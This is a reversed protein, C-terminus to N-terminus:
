NPRMTREVCSGTIMREYDNNDFIMFRKLALNRGLLIIGKGLIMCSDWNANWAELIVKEKMLVLTINAEEGLKFCNLFGDEREGEWGTWDEQEREWTVSPQMWLGTSCPLCSRALLLRPLLRKYGGGHDALNHEKVFLFLGWGEVGRGQPGPFSPPVTGDSMCCMGEAVVAPLIDLHLIGPSQDCADSWSFVSNWRRTQKRCSHQFSICICKYWHLIRGLRQRTPM